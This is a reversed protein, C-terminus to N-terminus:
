HPGRYIFYYPTTTFHCRFLLVSTSPSFKNVVFGIHVLRSDFGSWNANISTVTPRINGEAKTGHLVGENKVRDIYSIKELRRRSSVEVSEMYKQDVKRLTWMEAGYLTVNWIYCNM